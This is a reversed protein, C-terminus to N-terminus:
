AMALVCPTGVLLWAACLPAGRSRCLSQTNQGLASLLSLVLSFFYAGLHTCITRPRSPLLIFYVEESILCLFIFTQKAESLFIEAFNGKWCNWGPSFLCQSNGALNGWQGWCRPGLSHQQPHRLAAPMGAPGFVCQRWKETGPQWLFFRSVPHHLIDPPWFKM